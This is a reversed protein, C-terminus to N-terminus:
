NKSIYCPVTFYVVTGKEKESKIWIKGKHITIFEKCLLLGLGSGKENNTGLETINNIFVSDIKDPKIGTGYDKISIQIFQDICKNANIEIRSNKYSFKISNTILNRFIIQMLNFDIFVNIDSNINNIITIEKQLAITYFSDIITNVINSLNYIKFDPEISNLQSKSWYLLNDILTLTNKSSQQIIESYKRQKDDLNPSEVLLDSFGIINNFPSRLDHSIISFLKDKSKNINRINKNKLKLKNSFRIVQEKAIVQEKYILYVVATNFLILFSFSLSKILLQDHKELLDINLFYIEPIIYYVLQFAIIQSVAILFHKFINLDFLAAIAPYTVVVLLAYSWVFYHTSHTSFLIATIFLQIEFYYIGLNQAVKLKKNALLKYVYFCVLINIAELIVAFYTQYYFSLILCSFAIINSFVTIGTIQRYKRKEDIDWKSDVFFNLKKHFYNELLM